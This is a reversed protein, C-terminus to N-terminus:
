HLSPSQTSLRVASTSGNRHSGQIATNTEPEHSAGVCVPSHIFIARIVSAHVGCTLPTTVVRISSSRSSTAMLYQDHMRVEEVRPRPGAICADVQGQPRPLYQGVPEITKLRVCDMNSGFARQAPDRPGVAQFALQPEGCSKM